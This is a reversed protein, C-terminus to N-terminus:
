GNCSSNKAKGNAVWSDVESLKFRWLRGVKYAPMKKRELWKYITCTQIQLHAAVENVSSWTEKNLQKM